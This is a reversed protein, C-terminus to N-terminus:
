MMFPWSRMSLGATSRMSGPMTTLFWINLPPMTTSPPSTASPLGSLRMTNVESRSSRYPLGGSVLPSPEVVAGATPLQCYMRKLGVELSATLTSSWQRM